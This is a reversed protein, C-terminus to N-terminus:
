ELSEVTMAFKSEGFDDTMSIIEGTSAKYNRKKLKRVTGKVTVTDGENLNRLRKKSEPSASQIWYKVGSDDVVYISYRTTRPDVYTGINSYKIKGRITRYKSNISIGGTFLLSCVISAIGLGVILWLRKGILKKM